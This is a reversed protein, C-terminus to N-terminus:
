CSPRFQNLRIVVSRIVLQYSLRHRQSVTHVDSSAPVLVAENRRFTASYILMMASHLCYRQYGQVFHRVTNWGSGCYSDERVHFGSINNYVEKLSTIHSPGQWATNYTNDDTAQRATGYKEVNDWLRYSKRFSTVSCLIHTKIKDVVKTQFM